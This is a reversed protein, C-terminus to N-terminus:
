VEDRSAGWNSKELKKFERESVFSNQLDESPAGKKIAAMTAKYYNAEMTKQYELFQSEGARAAQQSPPTPIDIFATTIQDFGLQYAAVEGKSVILNNGAANAQVIPVGNERARSLVTQNQSKNISGYTPILLYQAGDLVLTRALMPMWRDSCILPGCRGLPTDFARVQRGPCWFNWTPHAGTGETLKHYTGCIEGTHDIFIFSNFANKGIREAFGFCLCIKLAKALKRFRAIYPGDLPEAIDLLAERREPHWIADMIVYGELMGETALILAPKERAARRFFAELKEANEAKNWKKPRTSVAAVKYRSFMFGPDIFDKDDADFQWAPEKVKLPPLTNPKM